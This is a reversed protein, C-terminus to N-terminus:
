RMLGVGFSAIAKSRDGGNFVKTTEGFTQIELGGHVSWRGIRSMEGLPVTVM